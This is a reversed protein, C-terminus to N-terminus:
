WFYMSSIGLFFLLSHSTSLRFIPKLKELGRHTQVAITNKSQKTIKSIEELSLDRAYRMEIIKKYKKPLRKLLKFAKKGDFIDSQRETNDESPEFGKEILVDLSSTQRKRYQDVILNNLVHYLFAKLNHIKGGKILYSWTKLFTEQVLDESVMPDHTKFFSYSCLMKEYNHHAMTLTSQMQIIQNQTMENRVNM